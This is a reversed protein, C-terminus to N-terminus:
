GYLVHNVIIGVFFVAAILALVLATRLNSGQELGRPKRASRLADAAPDPAAARGSHTPASM